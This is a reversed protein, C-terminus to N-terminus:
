YGGVRHTKQSTSNQLNDNQFNLFPVIDIFCFRPSPKKPVFNKIKLKKSEYIKEPSFNLHTVLPLSVIDIVSPKAPTKILTLYYNWPQPLNHSVIIIINLYTSLPPCPINVHSVPTEEAAGLLLTPTSTSKM